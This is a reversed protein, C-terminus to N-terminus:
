AAQVPRSKFILLRKKSSGYKQIDVVRYVEDDLAISDMDSNEDEDEDQPQEEYHDLNISNEDQDSVDSGNIQIFIESDSDNNDFRHRARMRQRFEEIEYDNLIRVEDDSQDFSM